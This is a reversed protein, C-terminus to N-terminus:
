GAPPWLLVRRGAAPCTKERDPVVAGSRRRRHDADGGARVAASGTRRGDVAGGQGVTPPARADGGGVAAGGGASARDRRRHHRCPSRVGPDRRSALHLEAVQLRVELVVAVVFRAWVLWALVSLVGVFLAVEDGLELRTRGPWPNGVLVILLVPVGVVLAVAALLAGIAAATGTDRKVADRERHACGRVPEIDVGGVGLGRRAAAPLRRLRRRRGHGVAWRDVGLRHRRAPRARRPGTRVGAGPGTRPRLARGRDAADGRPGRGRGSARAERRAQLQRGGDLVLGAAVLLAPLMIVVLLSVSGRAGAARRM